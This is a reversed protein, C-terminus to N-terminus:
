NGNSISNIISNLKNWHTDFNVIDYVHPFDYNGLYVIHKKTKM